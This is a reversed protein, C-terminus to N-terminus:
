YKPCEFQVVQLRNLQNQGRIQRVEDDKYQPEWKKNGRLPCISFFPDVWFLNLSLPKQVQPM